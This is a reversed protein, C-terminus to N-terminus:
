YRELDINKSIDSQGSSAQPNVEASQGNQETETVAPQPTTQDSSSDKNPVIGRAILDQKIIDKQQQNDSIRQLRLQDLQSRFEATQKSLWCNKELEDLYDTLSDGHVKGVNKVGVEYYKRTEDQGMGFCCFRRNIPDVSDQTPDFALTQKQEGEYIDILSIQHNSRGYDGSYDRSYCYCDVANVGMNIAFANFLNSFGACITKQNFLASFSSRILSRDLALDILLDNDQFDSYSQNVYKLIEDRNNIADQTNFHYNKRLKPSLETYHNFHAPSGLLSREKYTKAEDYIVNTTIWQYVNYLSQITSDNPDCVTNTIEDIRSKLMFAQRTNWGSRNKDPNEAWNILDYCPYRQLFKDYDALFRATTENNALRFFTNVPFCFTPVFFNVKSKQNMARDLLGILDPLSSLQSSRNFDFFYENATKQDCFMKDIDKLNTFGTVRTLNQCNRMGLQKLEPFQGVDFDTIYDQNDLCLTVLKKCSYLPTIDHIQKGEYLHRAIYPYEEPSIETNPYKATVYKKIREYDFIDSNESYNSCDLFTLNRLHGIGELSNIEGKYSLLDLRKCNDLTEGYLSDGFKIEQPPHVIGSSDTFGEKYMAELTQRVADFLAPNEERYFVDDNREAKSKAQKHESGQKLQRIKNLTSFSKM